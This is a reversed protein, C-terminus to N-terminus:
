YLMVKLIEKNGNNRIEEIIEEDIFPKVIKFSGDKEKKLFGGEVLFTKIKTLMKKKGSDSWNNVIDSQEEKHRLYNKFDVETLYYDFNIFKDRIVEDMFEAIFREICLILYLNIFKGVEIDEIKYGNKYLFECTRKMESYYFNEGTIAVYRM